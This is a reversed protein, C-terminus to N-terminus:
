AVSKLRRHSLYTFVGIWICVYILAVIPQLLPDNNPTPNLATSPEGKLSEVLAIGIMTIGSISLLGVLLSLFTNKIRISYFFQGICIFVPFILALALLLKDKTNNVEIAAISETFITYAIRKANLQEFGIQGFTGLWELGLSALTLLKSLIGLGLAYLFISAVKERYTAPITSFLAPKGHVVKQNLYVFFYVALAIQIAAQMWNLPYARTWESVFNEYSIHELLTTLRPLGFLLALIGISLVILHTQTSKLDARLLLYIRGWSSSHHQRTQM